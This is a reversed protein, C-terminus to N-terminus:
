AESRSRAVLELEGRSRLLWTGGLLVPLCSVFWVILFVLRSSSTKLRSVLVFDAVALVILLPRLSAVILASKRYCLRSKCASCWIRSPLGASCDPWLGINKGCNSCHKGDSM